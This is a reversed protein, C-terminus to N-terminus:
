DGSFKGPGYWATADDDMPVAVPPRIDVQAVTITPGDALVMKRAHGGRCSALAYAREQTIGRKRTGDLGTWEWDNM